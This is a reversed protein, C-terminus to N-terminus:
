LNIHRMSSPAKDDYSFKYPDFKPLACALLTNRLQDIVNMQIKTNVICYINEM